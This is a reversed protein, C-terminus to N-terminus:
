VWRRCHPGWQGELSGVQHSVCVSVGQAIWNIQQLGTTRLQNDRSGFKRLRLGINADWKTTTTAFICDPFSNLISYQYYIYCNYSLPVVNGGNEMTLLELKGINNIFFTLLSVSKLGCFWGFGSLLGALLELYSFETISFITESTFCIFCTLLNMILEVCRRCLKLQKLESQLTKRDMEEKMVPISPLERIEHSHLLDNM